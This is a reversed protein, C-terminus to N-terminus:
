YKIIFLILLINALISTNNLIDKSTVFLEYNPSTVINIVSCFIGILCSVIIIIELTLKNKM